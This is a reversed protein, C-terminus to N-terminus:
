DLREFRCLDFYTTGAVNESGGGNLGITITDALQATLRIQMAYFTWTTETVATALLPPLSFVDRLLLISGGTYRDKKAWCSLQYRHVGPILVVQAFISNEQLPAFWTTHLLVSFQGGGPPVDPSFHAISTDAFIWGALSPGGALEFSSNNLLNEGQTPFGSGGTDDCATWVVISIAM